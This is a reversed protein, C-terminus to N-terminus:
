CWNAKNHRWDLNYNRVKVQMLDALKPQHTQCHKRKTQCDTFLPMFCGNSNQLVQGNGISKRKYWCQALTCFCSCGCRHLKKICIHGWNSQYHSCCNGTGLTGTTTGVMCTGAPPLVPANEATRQTPLNPFCSLAVLLAHASNCGVNSNTMAGFWLAVAKTALLNRCSVNVGIVTNAAGARQAQLLSKCRQWRRYQGTTTGVRFCDWEADLTM